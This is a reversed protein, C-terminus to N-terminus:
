GGGQATSLLSPSRADTAGTEGGLALISKRACLEVFGSCVVDHTALPGFRNDVAGPKPYPDPRMPSCAANRLPRSPNCCMNRQAPAQLM